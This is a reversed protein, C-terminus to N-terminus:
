ENIEVEYVKVFNPVGKVWNYGKEEVWKIYNDVSDYGADGGHEQEYEDFYLFDKGPYDYSFDHLSYGSNYKRGGYGEREVSRFMERLQRIAEEQAEDKNAYAKKDVTVSDYEGGHYIEDNYELATTTVIYVTKM